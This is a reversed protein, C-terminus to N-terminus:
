RVIAELLDELQRDKFDRISLLAPGLTDRDYLTEVTVLACGAARASAVGARSDEFALCREATLGLESATKLYIEPDPKPRVVDDVTLITDFHDYIGLSRLVPEVEERSSSTAVALPFHNEKIKDIVAVVGAVPHCEDPVRMMYFQRKMRLVECPSLQGRWAHSLIMKLDHDSRGVSDEVFGDPLKLGVDKSLDQWARIHVDESLIITGDFDFIFGKIGLNDM